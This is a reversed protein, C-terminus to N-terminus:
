SKISDTPTLLVEHTKDGIEKLRKSIVKINREDHSICSSLEKLSLREEKTLKQKSQKNILENLAKKNKKVQSIYFKLDYIYDRIEIKIEKERQKKKEEEKEILTKRKKINPLNFDPSFDTLMADIVMDDVQSQTLTTTSSPTYIDCKINIFKCFDSESKRGALWWDHRCAKEVSLGFYIKTNPYYGYYYIKECQDEEYKSLDLGNEAASRDIISCFYTLIEHSKHGTM